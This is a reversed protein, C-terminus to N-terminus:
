DNDEGVAKISRGDFVPVIDYVNLRSIYEVDAAYGIERLHGAAASEQTFASVFEQNFRVGNLASSLTMAVGVDEAVGYSGGAALIYVDKGSLYSLVAELNLSSCIVAGPLTILVPILNSTKLVMRAFPKATYWAILETPSNGLDYGQLTVGGQEGAIVAGGERLRFAEGDDVVPIIEEIGLHLATVITSSARLNDIVVVTEDPSIDKVAERGVGIRCSAM